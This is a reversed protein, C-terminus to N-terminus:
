ERILKDVATDTLVTVTKQVSSPRNVSVKACARLSITTASTARYVDVRHLLYLLTEIQISSLHDAQRKQTAAVIVFSHVSDPLLSGQFEKFDGVM